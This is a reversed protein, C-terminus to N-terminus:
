QWTKGKKISDFRSWERKRQDYSYTPYFIKVVEMTTLGQNFLDKIKNVDDNTFISRGNNTGKNGESYHNSLTASHLVNQKHTVWELNNANYNTRDMDIHNVEAGDFKGEVWANAVYLHVPIGGGTCPYGDTNLHIGAKQNPKFPNILDGEKSVFKSRGRVTVFKYITNNITVIDGEFYKNKM